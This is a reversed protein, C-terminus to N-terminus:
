SQLLLSKINESICKIVMQRGYSSDTEEKVVDEGISFIVTICQFKNTPKTLM